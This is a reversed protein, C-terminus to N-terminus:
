EHIAKRMASARAYSEAIAADAAAQAELRATGVEQVLQAWEQAAQAYARPDPNSEFRDAHAQVLEV